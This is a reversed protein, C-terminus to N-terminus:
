VSILLVFYPTRLPRSVRSVLQLKQLQDQMTPGGLFKLEANKETHICYTSIDNTANQM